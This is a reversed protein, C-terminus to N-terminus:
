GQVSRDNLMRHNKAVRRLPLVYVQGIILDFIYEQEEIVDLLLFEDVSQTTDFIETDQLSLRGKLKRGVKETATYKPTYPM